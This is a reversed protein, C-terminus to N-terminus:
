SGLPSAAYSTLHISFIDEVAEITRMGDTLTGSGDRTVRCIMGSIGLEPWNLKFVSAPMLSQAKMNAKVTLRALPYSLIKLARLGAARATAEDRFGLYQIDEVSMEGTAGISALEKLELTGERYFDEPDTYYVRVVNRLDEWSPRTLELSEICSGDLVLVTNPDYDARALAITILGSAPHTFIVGDIHRLIDEIMDRAPRQSEVLVSMGLSEAYLTAGAAQFAAVDILGPSIGLGYRADTLIDYLICAPNADYWNIRWTTGPLGLDNSWRTLEFAVPYCNPANGIRYSRFVAHCLGPYRPRATGMQAALYTDAPQDDEGWYFNIYGGPGGEQDWRGFLDNDQVLLESPSSGSVPFETHPTGPDPNPLKEDFWINQLVDVPGMCIGYHLGLFYTFGFEPRGAYIEDTSLDGYWLVNPDKVLCTGYVIPIARAETATPIDIDSIGSASPKPLKPKLLQGIIFSGIWMAATIWFAM